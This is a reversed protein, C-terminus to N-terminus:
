QNIGNIFIFVFTHFFFQEYSNVKTFHFYIYSDQFFLM